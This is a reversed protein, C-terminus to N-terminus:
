IKEQDGKSVNVLSNWGAARVMEVVYINLFPWHKKKLFAVFVLTKYDITHRFLSLPMPSTERLKRSINMIWTVKWRLSGSM